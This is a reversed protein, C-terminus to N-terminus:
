TTRGPRLAARSPARTRACRPSPTRLEHSADAVVAAAEARIGRAHFATEIQRADREARCAARGRNREDERAVRHSPRAAITAANEGIETLPRLGIRIVWLGLGTIGAVCRADGAARRGAATCSSDVGSLSTAVILINGNNGPRDARVRYREGGDQSSVTIGSGSPARALRPTIARQCSRRRRAQGGSFQPAARQCRHRREAQAGPRLSRPGAGDPLGHRTTANTTRGTPARARGRASRRGRHRRAVVIQRQILLDRAVQWLSSVRSSCGSRRSRSWGPDAPHAAVPARASDSRKSCRVRRGGTRDAAPRRRRARRLYSVYTEVM